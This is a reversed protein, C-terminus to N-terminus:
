SKWCVYGVDKLNCIMNSMEQLNRKMSHEPKKKYTDFKIMLLRLKTILTGGFKTKLAFWM